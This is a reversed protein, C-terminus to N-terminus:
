HTGALTALARRAQEVEAVPRDAHGWHAMFDTFAARAEDKRGLRSLVRGLAFSSLVSYATAPSESAQLTLTRVPRVRAFADRSLELNGEREACVALRFTSRVRREDPALGLPVVDRCRACGVEAGARWIEREYGAEGGARGISRAMAAVDLCRRPQEHGARTIQDAAVFGHNSAARYDAILQGLVDVLDKDDALVSDLAVLEELSQERPGQSGFPQAERAATRWAERAASFRGQLMAIQGLGFWGLSRELQTGRLLENAVTSAEALEEGHERVELLTSLRQPSRGFLLLVDRARGAAAQPNGAALEAMLQGVWAQENAPADRLWAQQLAPIERGLGMVRLSEQVDTGFQLDPRLHHMSRLVALFEQHRRLQSLSQALSWGLLLDEPASTFARDLASVVETLAASSQNEELALLSVAVPDRTRDLARRGRERAARADPTYIGYTHMLLAYPHGWGPDRAIVAEIRRALAPVDLFPTGFFEDVADRYGRYAVVDRAGLRAMAEREAADLREPQGEDVVAAVRALLPALAASLSTARESGLTRARGGSPALTAAVTVSEGALQWRLDVVVNAAAADTVTTVHHDAAAFRRQALQALARDLDGMGDVVFAVRRDHAPLRGGLWRSSLLAGALVLALAAAMLWPWRRHPAPDPEPRTVGARAIALPALPELRELLAKADRIRRAPDIVLCDDIVRALEAPLEPRAAAVSPPPEEVRAKMLEVLTKHQYARRGTAAEFLVLGFSYVDAAPGVDPSRQLQEPAMYAPTGLLDGSRTLALEAIVAASDSGAADDASGPLRSLGFDTIVARGSGARQMINSPKLDRHTVGAEHAAALARALDLALALLDADAFRGDRAVRRDLTDGDVLEMSLALHDGVAILDYIRVVGPHTVRWAAQVERRLRAVATTSFSRATTLMKIAVVTDAVRDRARFVVGFAGRGLEALLEYRGALVDGIHLQVRPARPGGDSSLTEASVISREDDSDGDREPTM